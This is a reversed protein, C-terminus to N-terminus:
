LDKPSELLLKEVSTGLLGPSDSQYSKGKTARALKELFARGGETDTEPGCFITDIKNKFERAIRLTESADNPMGDSVLIIKSGCDDAAQIYRLAAAMNTSGGCNLPVGGPAFICYDAFCFLAIKGKHMTQLHIVDEEAVQERSKGGPADHSSMSGSMDLVIIYDAGLFSEALGTNNQQAIQSLSGPVISNNM